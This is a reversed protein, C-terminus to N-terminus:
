PMSEAIGCITRKNNVAGEPAATANEVQDAAEKVATSRFDVKM